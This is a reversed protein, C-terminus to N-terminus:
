PLKVLTRPSLSLLMKTIFLLYNILKKILDSIYSPTFSYISKYIISLISLKCRISFPLLIRFSQHSTTTSHDLRTICYTTRISSRIIRNLPATTKAPLLNLLSSCYDIRSLVLANILTKTLNRSLSTRIKKNRFLHFNSSKTISSIHNKFSLKDDFILGLNKSSHSPTIIINNLTFNPFSTDSTSINLVTTKSSNILLKNSLLWVRICNAYEILEFNITNHSHIPFFTFLQIDDAFIHYHINSFNKILDAIHHIYISFFSPDLVSEQPIGHLFLRTRNKM